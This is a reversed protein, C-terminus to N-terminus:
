CCAVMVKAQQINSLDVCVEEGIVELCVSGDVVKVIKGKITKDKEECQHTLSVIRGLNREFDQSKTLPRDIGPSSVELRYNAFGEDIQQELLDSLKRSFRVCDKVTIGQEHDIFVGLTKSSKGGKFVLDYLEYGESKLADDILKKIEEKLSKM